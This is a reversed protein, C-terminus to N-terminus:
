NINKGAKDMRVSNNKADIEYDTIGTIRHQSKGEMKRSVTYSILETEREYWNVFWKEQWKRNSEARCGTTQQEM